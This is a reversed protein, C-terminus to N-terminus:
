RHQHPLVMLNGFATHKLPRKGCVFPATRPAPPMYNEMPHSSRFLYPWCACECGCLYVYSVYAIGHVPGHHGKYVEKEEGTSADHVRQRKYVDTYAHGSQEAVAYSHADSSVGQEKGDIPIKRLRANLHPIEARSQLRIIRKGWRRRADWECTLTKSVKRQTRGKNSISNYYEYHWHM